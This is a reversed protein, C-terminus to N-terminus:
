IDRFLSPLYVTYLGKYFYSICSQAKYFINIKQFLHPHNHNNIYNVHVLINNTLDAIDVLARDLHSINSNVGAHECQGYLNQRIIFIHFSEPSSLHKKTRVGM